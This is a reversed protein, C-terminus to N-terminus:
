FSRSITFDILQELEDRGTCQPLKSLCECARKRLREMVDFAYDIGGNDRAFAQIHSIEDDSLTDAMLMKKIDDVGELGERNLVYLLPLSM